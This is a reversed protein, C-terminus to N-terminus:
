DRWAFAGVDCNPQHSNLYIPTSHDSKNQKTRTQGVVYSCVLVLYHPINWMIIDSGCLM